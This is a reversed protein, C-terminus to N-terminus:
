GERPLYAQRVADPDFAPMEGILHVTVDVPLSHERGDLGEYVHVGADLRAVDSVPASVEFSSPVVFLVPAAGPENARARVIADVRRMTDQLFPPDLCWAGGWQSMDAEFFSGRSGFPADTQAFASFFRARPKDLLRANFPSAFGENRVGWRYFLDYVRQPPGIHRVEAYISDYQLGAACLASRAEAENMQTRAFELLRDVPRVRTLQFDGCQLRDDHLIVRPEVNQDVAADSDQWAQEIAALAGSLKSESANLRQDRAGARLHRVSLREFLDPTSAGDAELLARMMANELVREADTADWVDLAQACELVIRSRAWHRYLQGLAHSSPPQAFKFDHIEAAAHRNRL